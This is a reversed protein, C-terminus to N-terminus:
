SSRHVAFGAFSQQVSMIEIRNVNVHPPQSACFFITEAVDAATLPQFGRYVAKAKTEDGAMRVVSFETGEVMGPEVDTVRVRTGVLDARLNLAFNMVFAKTAGYVNGGPYPYLGAVSGLMIVHGRDRAVMGPLIARTVHAVGKCNTDIMTEWDDLKARPAPDVGLALGANNVLVSVAEFEKPLSAVVRDVSARDRVDMAVVHAPVGLEGALARLKEERRATLVLRAGAKAFRRAISAGIGVSAGTVFVVHDKLDASV